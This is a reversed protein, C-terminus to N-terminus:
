TSSGFGGRGRVTTLHAPMDFLKTFGQQSMANYLKATGKSNFFSHAIQKDSNTAFLTVFSNDALNCTKISTVEPCTGDKCCSGGWKGTGFKFIVMGTPVSTTERAKDVYDAAKLKFDGPTNFKNITDVTFKAAAPLAATFKVKDNKFGVGYGKFLLDKDTVSTDFPFERCNNVRTGVRDKSSHLLWM